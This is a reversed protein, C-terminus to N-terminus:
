PTKEHVAPRVLRLNLEVTQWRQEDARIAMRMLDIRKGSSSLRELLAMLAPYPETHGAVPTLRVRVPLYSVQAGEAAPEAASESAVFNGEWGRDAAEKKLSRLLVSLDQPSDILLRSATEAREVLEAAQQESCALQLASIEDELAILPQLEAREAEVRPAHVAFNWAILGAMVVCPFLVPMARRFRAWAPADPWGPVETLVLWASRVKAILKAKL